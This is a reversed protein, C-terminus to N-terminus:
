LDYCTFVHWESQQDPHQASILNIDKETLTKYIAKTILGAGEQNPSDSRFFPISKGFTRCLLRDSSTKKALKKVVPIVGHM